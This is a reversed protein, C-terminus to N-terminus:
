PNDIHLLIKGHLCCLAVSSSTSQHLPQVPTLARVTHQCVPWGSLPVRISMDWVLQLVLCSQFGRTAMFLRCIFMLLHAHYMICACNHWVDCQQPTQPISVSRTVLSWLWFIGVAFSAFATALVGNRNGTLNVVSEPKNGDINMDADFADNSCSMFFAIPSFHNWHLLEFLQSAVSRLNLWLIILISALNLQLCKSLSVTGTAAYAAAAAVQTSNFSASICEVAQLCVLTIEFSVLVPIISVTYMPPKIAAFWLKRRRQQETAVEEESMPEAIGEPLQMSTPNASNSPDADSAATALSSAAKVTRAFGRSQRNCSPLKNIARLGHQTPLLCAPHGQPVYCQKHFARLQRLLMASTPDSFTVSLTRQIAQSPTLTVATCVDSQCADFRNHVEWCTSDVSGSLHWDPVSRRRM